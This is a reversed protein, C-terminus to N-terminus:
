ANPLLLLLPLPPLPRGEGGVEGEFVPLDDRGFNRRRGDLGPPKSLLAGISVGVIRSVIRSRSDLDAALNFLFLPFLSFSRLFSASSDDCFISLSPFVRSDSVEFSSM